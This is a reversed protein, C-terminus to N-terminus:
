PVVGVAGAGLMLAKYAAESAFFVIFLQAGGTM